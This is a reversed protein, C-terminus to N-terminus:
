LNGAFTRVLRSVEKPAELQTFHGIGPIIEVRTGPVREKLLELWPSTDGKPMTIRKRDVNM